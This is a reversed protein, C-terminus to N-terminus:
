WGGRRRPPRADGAGPLDEEADAPNAEEIRDPGLGLNEVRVLPVGPEEPELPYALQHGTFAQTKGFRHLRYPRPGNEGGVGRHRRADVAKRPVEHGAVEALPGLFAPNGQVVEHHEPCKGRRPCGVSREVHGHHTQAQGPHGVPHGLQVAFGTPGHELAQPRRHRDVLHGMPDTVLPTCPGVQTDESILSKSLM